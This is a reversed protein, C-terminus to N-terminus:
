FHLLNKYGAINSFKKRVPKKTFDKPKKYIIKKEIFSM